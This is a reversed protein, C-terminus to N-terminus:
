EYAKLNEEYYIRCAMGFIFFYLNIAHTSRLLTNTIASTFFPVLVFWAGVKIFRKIINFWLVFGVIGTTALISFIDNHYKIAAREFDSELGASYGCGLIPDHKFRSIFEEFHIFPRALTSTEKVSSDEMAAIMQLKQIRDIAARIEPYQYYLVRTVLLYGAFLAALVAIFKILSKFPDNQRKLYEVIFVLELIATQIFEGRSSIVINLLFPLLIVLWVSVGRMDLKKKKYFLVIALLLINMQLLTTNPNGGSGVSRDSYENAHIFFNYISNPIYQAFITLLVNMMVYIILVYVFINYNFKRRSYGLGFCMFYFLFLVLEDVFPAHSSVNTMTILILESICSIGILLFICLLVNRSNRDSVRGEIDVGQINRRLFFTFLWLLAFVYSLKIPLGAIHMVPLLMEDIVFLSGIFTTTKIAEKGM